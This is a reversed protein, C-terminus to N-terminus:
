SLSEGVATKLQWYLRKADYEAGLVDRRADQLNQLAQLVDLNSVLSRTYDDAQFRYNEEAAALAKSLAAHRELATHLQAYADRIDLLAARRTREMALEAARAQAKTERVAGAVQGGQFLPVDVTLLVDWDVDASTGARKTYYNSEVDIDPWFDGQAVRVEAGAARAAEEAARVDPRSAAASLYVGEHDLVPLAADDAIAEIRELGTLFELLQRASIELGRVREIEAEIRRLQAAASAVESPRSRGLRERETLEDMRGLLVSRTLELAGLDERQQRLLYFADSVDVLLLQEARTKEHRRQRREARTGVMAAFEKFGSFLPQTLVFKREPVREASSSGSDQRRESLSFSARPLVGSFAQTFRGEAERIAEQQIAITESRTLALRYCAELTLAEPALRAMPPIQPAPPAPEAALAHPGGMLLGALCGVGLRQPWRAIRM